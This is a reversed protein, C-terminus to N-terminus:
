SVVGDGLSQEIFISRFVWEMTGADKAYTNNPLKTFACRTAVIRDGRAVDRISIVNRGHNASSSTDFAFMKSLKSNLPSTKLLRITVTGARTSHLSHQGSGYSAGTQMTSTDEQEITIGEDAVGGDSLSFSGGPGNIAANIDLFSYTLNGAAM